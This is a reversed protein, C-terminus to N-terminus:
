EHEEEVDSFGEEEEGYDVDLDSEVPAMRSQKKGKRKDKNRNAFDELSVGVNEYDQNVKVAQASLGLNAALAGKVEGYILKRADSGTPVTYKVTWEHAADNRIMPDCRQACPARETYMSIDDDLKHHQVAIQGEAHAGSASTYIHGDDYDRGYNAKLSATRYEGERPTRISKEMDALRRALVGSDFGSKAPSGPAYTRQLVSTTGTARPPAPHRDTNELSSDFKDQAVEQPSSGNLHQAQATFARTQFMSKAPPEAQATFPRPQLTSPIAESKSSPKAPNTIRASVGATM